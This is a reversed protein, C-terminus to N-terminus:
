YEEQAIKLNNITKLAEHYDKKLGLATLYHNKQEANSAEVM